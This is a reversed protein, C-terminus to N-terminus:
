SNLFPKSKLVILKENEVFAKSQNFNQNKASIYNFCPLQVLPQNLFGWVPYYNFFQSFFPIFSFFGWVFSIAVAFVARYSVSLPLKIIKMFTKPKQYELGYSIGLMQFTSIEQPHFEEIALVKQTWMEMLTVAYIYGAITKLFLLLLFGCLGTYFYYRNIFELAQSPSLADLAPNMNYFFVPLIKFFTLVISSISYGLALLLLKIPSHCIMAKIFSFDFFSQWKGTFAHRTQALPLYFMVLIFLLMGLLSLSIGTASEEYMKNFSIHWGTYWAIAWLLSPIITLVWITMIASIGTKWNLCFSHFLSKLKKLIGKSTRFSDTQSLLLNPIDRVVIIESNNSAFEYWSTNKAINSFHFLKKFIFRKTWRYIWGLVFISTFLSQTFLGCVLLTWFTRLAKKWM